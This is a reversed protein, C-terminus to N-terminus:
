KTSSKLHAPLPDGFNKKLDTKYEENAMRIVGELCDKAMYSEALAIKLKKNDAELQKLRDREDMTEIKIVKNLLHSKGYLKVWKQITEGGRIDYKRRLSEFSIGQEAEKIVMQRFSISYRITTKQEKTAM